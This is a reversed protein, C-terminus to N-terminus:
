RKNDEIKIDMRSRRNLRQTIDATLFLQLKGLCSGKFPHQVCALCTEHFTKNIRCAGGRLGTRRSRRQRISLERNPLYNRCLQPEGSNKRGKLVSSAFYAFM